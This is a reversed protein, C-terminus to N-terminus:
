PIALGDYNNIDVLPINAEYFDNIAEVFKNAIAAAGKPTPFIGDLSIASGEQYSVITNSGNLVISDGLLGKESLLYNDMFVVPINFEEGLDRIKLNYKDIDAAIGDREIGDIVDKDLIPVSDSLGYGNVGIKTLSTRLFHDNDQLERILYSGNYNQKAQIFITESSSYDVNMYPLKDISPVECLVGDTTKTTLSTLLLKYNTYFDSEDTISGCSWGNEVKKLIDSLGFASVFFTPNEKGIISIYSETAPNIRNLFPNFSGSQNLDGIRLCPTSYNTISNTYVSFVPIISDEDCEYMDSHLSSSSSTAEIKTIFEGDDYSDIALYGSGNGSLIPQTVDNGGVQQFQGSLIKAISNEQGEEYLGDNTYGSLLNDGVYITNSLDVSGPSFTVEKDLKAKCGFMLVFVLFLIYARREM